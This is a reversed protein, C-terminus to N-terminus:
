VPSDAQSFRARMGLSKGKAKKGLKGGGWRNRSLNSRTDDLLTGRGKMGRKPTTYNKTSDKSSSPLALKWNTPMKFKM